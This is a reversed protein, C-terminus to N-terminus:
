NRRRRSSAATKAERFIADQAMASRNIFTRRAIFANKGKTHARLEDQDGKLQKDREWDLRSKDVASLTTKKLLIDLVHDINSVRLQADIFKRAEVSDKEVKKQIEVVKGAFQKKETVVVFEGPLAVEPRKISKLREIAEDPDIEWWNKLKRKKLPPNWVPPSPVYGKNWTAFKEDIQAPTLTPQPYQKRKRKKSKKKKQGPAGAIFGLKAAADKDADQTPDFEEDEEENYNAIIDNLSQRNDM